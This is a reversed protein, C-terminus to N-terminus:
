WNSQVKTTSSLLRYSLLKETAKSLVLSTTFLSNVYTVHRAIDELRSLYSKPKLPDFIKGTVKLLHILKLMSM